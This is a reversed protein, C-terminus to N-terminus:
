TPRNTRVSWQQVSWQTSFIHHLPSTDLLKQTTPSTHTHLLPQQLILPLLFQGASPFSRQLLAEIFFDNSPLFHPACLKFGEMTTAAQFMRTVVHKLHAAICRSTRCKKFAMPDELTRHLESAVLSKAQM